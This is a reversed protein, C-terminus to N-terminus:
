IKGEKKLIEDKIEEARKDPLWFTPLTYKSIIIVWVVLGGLIVLPCTLFASFALVVAIILTILVAKAREACLSKYKKDNKIIREIEWREV